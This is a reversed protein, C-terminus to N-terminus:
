LIQYLPAYVQMKHGIGEKELLPSTNPMFHYSFIGVPFTPSLGVPTIPTVLMESKVTWLWLSILMTQNSNEFCYANQKSLDKCNSEPIDTIFLINNVIWFIWLASVIGGGVACTSLCVSESKKWWRMVYHVHLWATRPLICVCGPRQYMVALM